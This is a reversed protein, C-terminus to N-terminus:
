GLLAALGPAAMSATFPIVEATAVGSTIFPDTAAIADVSEKEGRFLIVGGTRPTRRGSALVRGDTYLRRLWEIHQDLRADVADLDHVYTLVVVCLTADARVAAESSM